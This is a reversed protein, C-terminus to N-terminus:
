ALTDRATGATDQGATVARDRERGRAPPSEPQRAQQHAAGPMPGTSASTRTSPPRSVSTPRARRRTGRALRLEVRGAAGHQGAQVIMVEVHQRRIAALRDTRTPGGSTRSRAPKAAARFWAADSPGAVPFPNPGDAVVLRDGAVEVPVDQVAHEGVPGYPYLVAAPHQPHAVRGPQGGEARIRSGAGPISRSSAPRGVPRNHRISPQTAPVQLLRRRRRRHGPSGPSRLPRLPDVAAAAAGPDGTPGVGGGLPGVAVGPDQEVATALPATRWRNCRISGVSATSVMPGSCIASAPTLGPGTM